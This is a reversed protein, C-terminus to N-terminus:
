GSLGFERALLEYSRKRPELDYTWTLIVIEDIELEAALGRLRGGVQEPTGVFVSRRMMDVRVQEPPSYTTAPNDSPPMIPQLIGRERATRSRARSTFLRDAEEETDAVLAWVCINAYPEPYLESPRYHRRYIDLAQGAGRGETIFHAFSYPLGFHAAVQAGYDSTGLMWVDPATDGLPHAKIESFPHGEALPKGSVWSMLDQVQQPFQAAATNANPNLAFATRGDSGPARGVGLDIRGPALSELVRFQEAVKLASYHPLMVGASGLRIRETQVAIAAMLVEPATGVISPHSHHESVWFRHYGLAECHRALAMTEQISQAHPRGSMAVSQDLASLRM